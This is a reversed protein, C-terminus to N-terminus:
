FSFEKSVSILIYFSFYPFLYVCNPLFLFYKIIKSFNSILVFQLSHLRSYIKLFLSRFRGGVVHCFWNASYRLTMTVSPTFKIAVPM